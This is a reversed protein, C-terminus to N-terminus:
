AYSFFNFGIAAEASAEDFIFANPSVVDNIVIRSAVGGNNFTIVLDNDLSTFSYLASGAGSVVIRDDRGFGNITSTNPATASETFTTATASADFTAPAGAADLSTTATPSPTPTPAPAPNGGTASSRFFDFGVAQEATAENFVFATAPVANPLTIQSVVGGNNFTIQLDTGLSSFSYSSTAVNTTIIDGVGFGNIQSINGVAANETFSVNGNAASFTQLATAPINGGDLAVAEPLDNINVTVAQTASLAPTANDTAVVNFAFTSRTEFDPSAVFTVVGTTANIAFAAADAGSLSYRLTTGADPDTAAATLVTTTIPVNENIAVTQTAAAFVPAENVNTVTVTVAQTTSLAPSGNDTAVVNISYTARAEFDASARLTVIGTAGDINFLGADAGSLSFVISNNQADTANADYVVTAVPANEAVTATAGSTFTPATNTPAPPPPPPTPTNNGGGGVAVAAAVGGAILM